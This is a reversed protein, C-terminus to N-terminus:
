SGGFAFSDTGGSVCSTMWRIIPIDDDHASPGTVGNPQGSDSRAHGGAGAFPEDRSMVTDRRAAVGAVILAAILICAKILDEFSFVPRSGRTNGIRIM